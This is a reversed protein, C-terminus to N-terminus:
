SALEEHLYAHFERVHITTAHPHLTTAFHTLRDRLRTSSLTKTAPVATRASDIAHDLEGMGLYAEAASIRTLQASRSRAQDYAPLIGELLEAAKRHRGILSWCVAADAVPETPLYWAVWHPDRNTTGQAYTDEAAHLLHAVEASTHSDRTDSRAACLATAWAERNLLLAIVRPPAEASRATALAARALRSAWEPRGVYIAQHTMATLLWAATLTDGGIKAFKLAQGYYHQAQGQHGLDFATWGALQTMAAAATMLRAGVRADYRGRLLPAVTTHLYDIIAPRVLGAGFQHDMLNFARWAEMIRDADSVGVAPGGGEHAAVTVTRGYAWESLWGGLAAPVFPLAALTHRREADMDCRWLRASAVVTREVSLDSFDPIPCIETEVADSPFGDDGDLWREIQAPPVDFVQAMRARYVPRVGQIGREWRSWTTMSVWLAEAAEEQTM